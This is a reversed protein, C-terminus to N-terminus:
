KKNKIKAEYARIGAEDFGLHHGVEHRVVDFVMEKIKQPDNGALMEIPHKFITIKDPLVWSYGTGRNLKSVGEYLGLLLEQRKIKMENAKQRRVEPEVIFVVNQMAKKGAPPLALIAERVLQEFEEDEM